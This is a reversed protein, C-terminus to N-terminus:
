KKSVSALEDVNEPNSMGIVVNGLRQGANNLADNAKANEVDFERSDSLGIHSQAESLFQPLMKNEVLWRAVKDLKKEPDLEVIGSKESYFDLAKDTEKLWTRTPYLYLEVFPEINGKELSEDANKEDAEKKEFHAEEEKKATAGLIRDALTARIYDSNAKCEVGSIKSVVTDEAGRKVILFEGDVLGSEAIKAMSDPIKSCTDESFSRPVNGRGVPKTEVGAKKLDEVFIATLNNMTEGRTITGDISVEQAVAMCAISATMQPYQSKLADIMGCIGKSNKGTTEKIVSYGESIMYSIISLELVDAFLSTFAVFEKGQKELDDPYKKAIIEKIEVIRPHKTRYVDMESAFPVEELSGEIAKIANSKGCGPQGAVHYFKPTSTRTIAKKVIEGKENRADTRALDFLLKTASSLESVDLSTVIQIEEETYGDNRMRQILAERDANIKQGPAIKNPDLSQHIYVSNFTGYIQQELGM